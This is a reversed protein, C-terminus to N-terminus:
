GEMGLDDVLEMGGDRAAQAADEPEVPTWHRLCRGDLRHTEETGCVSCLGPDPAAVYASRGRVLVKDGRKTAAGRLRFLEDQSINTISQVPGM